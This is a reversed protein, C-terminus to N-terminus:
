SSCVLVSLGGSLLSGGFEFFIQPLFPLPDFPPVLFHSLLTLQLTFDDGDMVEEQVKDLKDKYRGRGM